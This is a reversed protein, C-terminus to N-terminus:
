RTELNTTQRGIGVTNVVRVLHMVCVFVRASVCGTVPHPPNPTAPPPDSRVDTGVVWHPSGYYYM